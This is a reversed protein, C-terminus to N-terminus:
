YIIGSTGPDLTSAGVPTTDYRAETQQIGESGEQQTSNGGEESRSAVPIATMYVGFPDIV